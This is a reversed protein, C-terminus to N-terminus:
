MKTGRRLVEVVKDRFEIVVDSKASPDDKNVFYGVKLCWEIAEAYAEGM